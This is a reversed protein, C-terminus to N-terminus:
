LDFIGNQTLDSPVMANKREEEQSEIDNTTINQTGNFNFERGLSTPM